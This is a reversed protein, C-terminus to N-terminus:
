LIKSLNKIQSYHMIKIVNQNVFVLQKKISIETQYINLVCAEIVAYIVKQIISYFKKQLQVDNTRVYM